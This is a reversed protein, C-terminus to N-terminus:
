CKMILIMAFHSETFLCYVKLWSNVSNAFACLTPYRQGIYEVKEIFIEVRKLCTSALLFPNLLRKLTTQSLHSAYIGQKAHYCLLEEDWYFLYSPFGQLMQVIGKVQSFSILYFM